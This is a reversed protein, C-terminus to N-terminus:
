TEFFIAKRCSAFHKVEQMFPDCVDRGGTTGDNRWCCVLFFIIQKM